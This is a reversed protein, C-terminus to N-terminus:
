WGRNKGIEREVIDPLGSGENVSGDRPYPQSRTRGDEGIYTGDSALSSGFRALARAGEFLVVAVKIIVQFM